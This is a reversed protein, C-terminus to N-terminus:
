ACELNPPFHSGFSFGFEFNSDSAIHTWFNSKIKYKQAKSLFIPAYVHQRLPFMWIHSADHDRSFVLPSNSSRRYPRVKLCSHPTMALCTTCYKCRWKMTAQFRVFFRIEEWLKWCYWHLALDIGLCDVISTLEVAIKRTWHNSKLSVVSPSLYYYYENTSHNKNRSQTRGAIISMRPTDILGM